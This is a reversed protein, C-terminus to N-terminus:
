ADIEGGSTTLPAVILTGGVVDTVSVLTGASIERDATATLDHSAGGYSLLVSGNRGAPISVSVRGSRGVLDELSFAPPAEARKLLNFLVFVIGAGLAGFGAGVLSARGADMDLAETGILGGVGFMAVFALLLPMLSVGGLDFDLNFSDLLGGLLDGLLVTVLLLIGGALLCVVFITNAVDITFM